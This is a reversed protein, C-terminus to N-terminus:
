PAKDSVSTAPSGPTLHYAHTPYQSNQSFLRGGAFYAMALLLLLVAIGGFRNFLSQSGGHPLMRHTKAGLFADVRLTEQVVRDLDASSVSRPHHSFLWECDKALSHFWEAGRRNILATGSPNIWVNILVLLTILVSAAVVSTITLGNLQISPATVLLVVLPVWNAVLTGWTLVASLLSYRRTKGECVSGKYRLRERMVYPTLADSDGSSSEDGVREQSFYNADEEFAILASKRATEPSEFFDEVFQDFATQNKSVSLRSYFTFHYVHDGTVDALDETSFVAFRSGGVQNRALECFSAAKDGKLLEPTPRVGALGEPSSASLTFSVTVSTGLLSKVSSVSEPSMVYYKGAFVFPAHADLFACITQAYDNSKKAM